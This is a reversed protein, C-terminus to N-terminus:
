GEFSAANHVGDDLTSTQRAFKCICPFCSCLTLIAFGSHAKFQVHRPLIKGQFFRILAVVEASRVPWGETALFFLPISAALCSCYALLSGQSLLGGDNMSCFAMAFPLSPSVLFSDGCTFRISWLLTVRYLRRTFLLQCRVQVLRCDSCTTNCGSGRWQERLLSDVLTPDTPLPRTFDFPLSFYVLGEPM